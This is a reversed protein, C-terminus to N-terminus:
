NKMIGLIYRIYKHFINYQYIAHYKCLKNMIEVSSIDKINWNIDYIM